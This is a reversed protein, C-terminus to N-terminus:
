GRHRRRRLMVAAVAAAVGSLGVAAGGLLLEQRRKPSLRSWPTGPTGAVYAEENSHTPRWGAAVMRDNAVAWPAETYAVVGPPTQGLRLRWSLAAVARAAAAPLPIRPPAGALSRVDPADLWGDAAVNAPGDLRARRALDVASALDDVHVVQLPAAGEASRLASARRLSRALWSEEGGGVMVAPRLVSVTATGEAAFAQCLREVEAKQVAYALETNPRVPAAETLPVPNSPWAGYVTASSMAVVHAVGAAGAAHLLRSTALTNARGADGDDLEAGVAFALHVVSDAGAVLDGLDATALDAALAEVKPGGGAPAVSDVAVVRTVAPDAEVLRVVRSGLAGAAGTVVVTTDPGPHTRTTV